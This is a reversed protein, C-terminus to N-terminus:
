YLINYRIAKNTAGALNTWKYEPKKSRNKKRKSIRQYAKFPVRKQVIVQSQSRLVSSIASSRRLDHIMVASRLELDGTGKENARAVKIRKKNM